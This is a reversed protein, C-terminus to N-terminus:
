ILIFLACYGLARVAIDLFQGNLMVCVMYNYYNNKKFEHM